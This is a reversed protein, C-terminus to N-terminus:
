EGDKDLEERKAQLATSVHDEIEELLEVYEADTMPLQEDNLWEQFRAVSQKVDAM